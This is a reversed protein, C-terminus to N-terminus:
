TATSVIQPAAHSTDRGTPHSVRTAAKLIADVGWDILQSPLQGTAIAILLKVALFALSESDASTPRRADAFGEAPIVELGPFQAVAEVPDFGPRCRIVIGATSPNAHVELVDPHRLLARQLSAFARKQSRWEPIKIRLRTQTRHVLLARCNTKM